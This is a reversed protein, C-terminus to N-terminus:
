YLSSSSKKRCFPSRSKDKQIRLRLMESEANRGLEALLNVKSKLAEENTPDRRLAWDCAGLSNEVEGLAYFARMRVLYDRTKLVTPPLRLSGYLKERIERLEEESYGSATRGTINKEVMGFIISYSVTTQM